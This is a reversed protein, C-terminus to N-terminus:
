RLFLLKVIDDFGLERGRLYLGVHGALFSRVVELMYLKCVLLIRLAECLGVGSHLVVFGNSCLDVVVVLLSDRFVSHEFDDSLLSQLYIIVALLLM